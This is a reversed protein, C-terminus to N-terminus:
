LITILSSGSGKEGETALIQYNLTGLDMGAAKWADFHNATTITGGVRKEARVSWYQRFANEPFLGEYVPSCRYINYVGGDSTLNGKYTLCNDTSPDSM